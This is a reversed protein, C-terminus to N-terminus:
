EGAAGPTDPDGPDTARVDDDSVDASLCFDDVRAHSHAGSNQRTWTHFGLIRSKGRDLALPFQRMLERGNVVVDIRADGGGTEDVVLVVQYPGTGSDSRPFVDLTPWPPPDSHGNLDIGAQWKDSLTIGIAAPEDWVFPLTRPDDGCSVVLAVFHNGPTTHRPPLWAKFSVMWRRGVLDRFVHDIVARTMTRRRGPPAEFPIELAKGGLRAPADEELSLWPLPGLVGSQRDGLEACLDLGDGADFHDILLPMGTLRSAPAAAGAPLSASYGLTLHRRGTDPAAGEAVVVEGDIVDIEAAGSADVSVSFETGLDIIEGGPSLVTFGKARPPVLPVLRGRRLFVRRANVLEVEAPANIAVVAGDAFTLQVVGRDLRLPGSSLTAGVAMEIATGSLPDVLQADTAASLTAVAGSAAARGSLAAKVGLAAVGISALGVTMVLWSAATRGPWGNAPRGHTPGVAEHADPSPADGIPQSTPGGALGCELLAEMGMWRRYEDRAGRDALLIAELRAADADTLSGDVLDRMLGTFAKDDHPQM